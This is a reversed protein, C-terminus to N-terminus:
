QGTLKQRQKMVDEQSSKYKIKKGKLTSIQDELEMTKRLMAENVLEKVTFQLDDTDINLVVEDLPLRKKIEALREDLIKVQKELMVQYQERNKIREMEHKGEDESTLWYTLVENLYEPRDLRTLAGDVVIGTLEPDNSMYKLLNEYAEPNFHHTDYGVESLFYVRDHEIVPLKESKAPHIETSTNVIHELNEGDGM